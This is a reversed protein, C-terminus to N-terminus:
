VSLRRLRKFCQHGLISILCRLCLVATSQNQRRQFKFYKQFFFSHHAMSFHAQGLLWRIYLRRQYGNERKSLFNITFLAGFFRSGLCFGRCPLSHTAGRIEVGGFAGLASGLASGGELLNVVHLRQLPKPPISPLQGVHPPM